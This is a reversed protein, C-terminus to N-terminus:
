QMIQTSRRANRLYLMLGFWLGFFMGLVLLASVLGLTFSDWVKAVVVLFDGAIGFALFIMAAILMRSTFKVLAESDEGQLVIRHYAAPALLLVTSIAIAVLSTLHVYQLTQPLKGFADILMIAFQFGLLAQVGPIVIRTETLVQKIRDALPTEGTPKDQSSPKPNFRQM